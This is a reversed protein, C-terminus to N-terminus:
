PSVPAEGNTAHQLGSPVNKQDAEESLFIQIDAAWWNHVLDIPAFISSIAPFMEKANSYLM